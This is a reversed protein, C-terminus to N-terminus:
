RFVLRGGIRYRKIELYQLLMRGLRPRQTSALYIVTSDDEELLFDSLAASDIYSLGHCSELVGLAEKRTTPVMEQACFPVMARLVPFCLELHQDPPNASVNAPVPIWCHSAAVM